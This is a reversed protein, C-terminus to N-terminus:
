QDTEITTIITRPLNEFKEAWQGTALSDDFFVFPTGSGSVTGQFLLAGYYTANGSANYSGENYIVGELVPGDSTSSGLITMPGRADYTNSTCEDVTSTSTCTILAGASDTAKALRQQTAPAQWRVTVPEPDNGSQLAYRAPSGGPNPYVINLYPEHPESCNTGITCGETFPVIFYESNATITATDSGPTDIDAANLAVVYDFRGNANLEQYDWRDNTENDIFPNVAPPTAAANCDVPLPGGAPDDCQLQLTTTDVTQYGVDRFPEGPFNCYRGGSQIGSTGFSAINLYFFGRMLFPNGQASTLAVAPALIATNTTGDLNQPNAGTTTDFFFYGEEGGDKTNVWQHFFRSDGLMDYWKGTGADYRLYYVGQQGAGALAIQKWVDYVPRTFITNRRTPFLDQDQNQFHGSYGAVGVGNEVADPTSYLWLQNTGSTAPSGAPPTATGRASVWFWPDEFAKGILESLYNTGNNHEAAYGSEYPVVSWAHIWPLSTNLRKVEIEQNSIAKGWHVRFNGTTGTGEGSQLPGDAGPLPFEAVVIRVTRRSIVDTTGPKTKEATVAITALGYRTGVDHNWFRLGGVTTFTGAVVPPGYIRIEIIRGGEENDTFLHDNFDGLFTAATTSNIVIDASAADVGFFKDELQNFPINCLLTTGTAFKYYEENDGASIRNNRRRQKIANDNAPMLENELAWAPANFWQAVTRAGAEAVHLTQVYNRENVSIASETESIAVFGLGLLSLGVMVMLSVLLASGQDKRNRNRNKM